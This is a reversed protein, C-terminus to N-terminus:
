RISSEQNSTKTDIKSTDDENEDTILLTNNQFLDLVNPTNYPRPSTDDMIYEDYSQMKAKIKQQALGRKKQQNLMESLKM